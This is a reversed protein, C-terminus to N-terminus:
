VNTEAFTGEIVIRSAGSLHVRKGERSPKLGDAALLIAAKVLVMVKM